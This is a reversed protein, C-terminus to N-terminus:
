DLIVRKAFMLMKITLEFVVIEINKDFGRTRPLSAVCTRRHPLPHHTAPPYVIRGARFLLLLRKGSFVIGESPVTRQRTVTPAPRAAGSLTNSPIDTRMLEILHCDTKGSFAFLLFTPRQAPSHALTRPACLFPFFLSPSLPQTGHRYARNTFTKSLRSIGARTTNHLNQKIRSFTTTKNQKM